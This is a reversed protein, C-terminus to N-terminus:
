TARLFGAPIQLLDGNELLGRMVGEGYKEAFEQMPYGRGTKENYEKVFAVLDANSPIFDETVNTVSTGDTVHTHPVTSDHLENQVKQAQNYFDNYIYIKKKRSLTEHLMHLQNFSELMKKNENKTVNNSLVGHVHTEHLRRLRYDEDHLRYNEHLVRLEHLLKKLRELFEVDCVYRKFVDELLLVDSVDIPRVVKGEYKMPQLTALKLSKLHKGIVRNNPVDKLDMREAVESATIIVTDCGIREELLTALANVLLGDFSESRESVIEKQQNKVFNKFDELADPENVFVTPFSIMAQKIRPEIEVEFDVNLGVDADIKDFTKFRYMLLKNRIKQSEEFFNKDLDIPIEKKRTTTMIETLCRSELAKDKFDQRTSIIKPSFVPLVELKDPHERNCRVVPTDKQFGCNLIKIIETNEESSRFDAEDIAVTGKWVRILRYIPAPTLCGAAKITHYCISGITALFRTKGTGSDGRVRLYPLTRLQDYIWTLLVYWGAIRTMSSSIDCYKTIFESIEKLLTTTNEYEEAKSPLIVAGEELLQDKLPMILIDEETDQLQKEYRVEKGNWIAYSVEKGNWIQEWLEEEKKFTTKFIIKKDDNETEVMTPTSTPINYNLNHDKIYKALEGPSVSTYKGTLIAKEWTKISDHTRGQAEYYKKKIQERDKKFIILAALNKEIIFHRSGEPLKNQCCFNILFDEVWSATKKWDTGKQEYWKKAKELQTLLKKPYRNKHELPNKGRIIKHVADNYKPKWHPHGIVPSLTWGLNTRDLQDKAIAPMLMSVLLLKAHQNDEGLPMGKLAFINIYDSKGGHSTICYDFGLSKCASEIELVYRHNEDPTGEFELRLCDKPAIWLVEDGRYGRKEYHAIKDQNVQAIGESNVWIAEKPVVATAWRDLIQQSITM